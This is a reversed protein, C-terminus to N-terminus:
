MAQDLAPVIMDSGISAVASMPVLVPTMGFHSEQSPNAAGPPVLVGRGVLKEV